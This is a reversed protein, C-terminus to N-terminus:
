EVMALDAPTPKYGTTKIGQSEAAVYMMSKFEPSGSIKISDWGKAKAVELMDQITQNDSKATKLANGKDEFLVTTHNDASLYQGNDAVVYRSQLNKPPREYALDLVPQQRELTKHHPLEPENLDPPQLTSKNATQKATTVPETIPEPQQEPQEKEHRLSDYEIGNFSTSETKPTNSSMTTEQEEISVAVDKKSTATQTPSSAPFQSYQTVVIITSFERQQAGIVAEIKVKM